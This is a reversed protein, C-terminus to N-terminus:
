HITINATQKFKDEMHELMVKQALMTDETPCNIGPHACWSQAVRDNVMLKVNGVRGHNIRYKHGSTGGIVYFYNHKIMDAKQRANLASMLLRRARNNRAVELAKRAEGRRQIAARDEDSIPIPRSATYFRAGNVWANWETESSTHISTLTTTASTSTTSTTAQNVWQGWVSSTGTTSGDFWGDWATTTSAYIDM